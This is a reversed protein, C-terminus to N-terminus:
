QSIFLLFAKMKSDKMGDNLFKRVSPKFSDSIEYFVDVEKKTKVRLYSSAILKNLNKKRLGNFHNSFNIHVLNNERFKNRYFSSLFSEAESLLLDDNKKHVDNLMEIANELNGM